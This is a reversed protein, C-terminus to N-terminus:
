AINAVVKVEFYTKNRICFRVRSQCSKSQDKLDDALLTIGVHQCWNIYRNQKGVAFDSFLLWYRVLRNKQKYTYKHTAPNM